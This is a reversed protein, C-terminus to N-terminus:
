NTITVLRCNWETAQGKVLEEFIWNGVDARTVFYGIAPGPAKADHDPTVWGVRVKARGKAPSSKLLSARVTTFGSLVSDPKQAEEIGSNEMKRKDIHPTHLVVHYLHTFIYPVDRQSDIGTTSVVAVFPKTVLKQEQALERLATLLVSMSDSCINPQDVTIPHTLSAQFKPAGGLGSIIVSPNHELLSKVATIDTSSGAIIQLNSSVVSEPVAQQGTLLKQLKSPTRAVTNFNAM